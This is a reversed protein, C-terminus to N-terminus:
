HVYGNRRPCLHGEPNLPQGCMPCPPRGAAVVLAANRAFQLAVAPEIVVRLVDPGDPDSDAIEDPEDDDDEEEEEEEEEEGEGLARAEVTIVNRGTDLVLALTGVRFQEVVPEALPQATEGSAVREAIDKGSQRVAAVFAALREALVAVQVKELAVSVTQPGKTAQLYFTRDGPRGVAGALFQDPPDFVFIRRTL